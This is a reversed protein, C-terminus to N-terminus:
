DDIGFYYGTGNQQRGCENRSFIIGSQCANFWGEITRSENRPFSFLSDYNLAVVDGNFVIANNSNVPPNTSQGFTYNFLSAFISILFVYTKKRLLIKM